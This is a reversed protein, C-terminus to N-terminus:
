VSTLTVMTEAIASKSSRAASRETDLATVAILHFMRHKIGLALCETSPVAWDKMSSRICMQATHLSSGTSEAKNANSPVIVDPTVMYALEVLSASVSSAIRLRRVGILCTTPRIM